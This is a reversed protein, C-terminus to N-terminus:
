QPISGILNLIVPIGFTELESFYVVVIDYYELLAWNLLNVFIKIKM